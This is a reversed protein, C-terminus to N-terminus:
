IPRDVKTKVKFLFYETQYILEKLLGNEKEKISALQEINYRLELLDNFDKIYNKLTRDMNEIDELIKDSILTKDVSKNSDNIAEKVM